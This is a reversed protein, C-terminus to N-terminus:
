MRAAEEKPPTPTSTLGSAAPPAGRAQASAGARPPSPTLLREPAAGAAVPTGGLEGGGPGGTKRGAASHAACRAATTPPPHLRTPSCSRAAGRPRARRHFGGQRVVEARSRAGRQARQLSPVCQAPHHPREPRAATRRKAALEMKSPGRSRRADPLPAGGTDAGGGRAGADWHAERGRASARANPHRKM